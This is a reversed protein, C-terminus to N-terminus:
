WSQQWIAQLPRYDLLVIGEAAVIAQAEESMLFDFDAQRVHQSDGEIALL